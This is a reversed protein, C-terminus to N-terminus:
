SKSYVHKNFFTWSLIEFFVYVSNSLSVQKFKSYVWNYLGRHSGLRENNNLKEFVEITGYQRARACFQFDVQGNSPKLSIEEQRLAFGMLFLAQFFGLKFINFIIM